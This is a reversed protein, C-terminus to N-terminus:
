ANRRLNGRQHNHVSFAQCPPGGLLVDLEGPVIDGADLFDDGTIDQIRGDIFATKPHNEKFTKAALEDFDNAAVAQFGAQRFGETLGGAGAFLDITTFKTKAM